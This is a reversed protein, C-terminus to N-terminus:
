NYNINISIFSEKGIVIHDILPIGIIKGASVLQRTIEIDAESPDIVNSPHNHALIVAAAGYEIAPKFVERPHIISSNVTGISIVEDHILKHHANLYLGRMHERPLTRMDSLYIFADTATRIIPPSTPNEEFFRRGLEACAVIQIAKNLPIDLDKSLQTPNTQKSLIREGYEKLVRNSMELVGEKRTGSGLVIALLEQVSLAPPGLSLLKERPKDEHPLDRIKLTYKREGASVTDIDLLLDTDGIAYQNM